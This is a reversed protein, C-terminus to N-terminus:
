ILGEDICEELAKVAKSDYLLGAKSKLEQLAENCSMAERYPRKSTMADFSDAVAVIRAELSLESGKLGDPYGSGDLREHHHRIIDQTEELFNGKVMECGTVPHLKIIEFEEKSLRSPKKLISDDIEIKGIDHFLAGMAIVEQKESPVGLKRAIALSVDRVRKGHGHTYSDKIEVKSLIDKMVAMNNSIYKFLPRSSVHLLRVDTQPKLEVPSKLNHAYFYDGPELNVEKESYNCSITGEIIYYFELLDGGSFTDLFTVVGSRLEYMSIEVGDGHALLSLSSNKQAVTEITESSKCVKFGEM